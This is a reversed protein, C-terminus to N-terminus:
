GKGTFETPIYCEGQPNNYLHYGSYVWQSEVKGNVERTESLVNGYQDYEYIWKTVRIGEESERISEIQNGYQDYKTTFGYSLVGDHYVAYYTQRGAQDYEWVTVDSSGVFEQRIMRGDRDYEPLYERHTVQEGNADYVTMSVVDGYENYVRTTRSTIGGTAGYYVCEIENGREDYVSTSSLIGNELVKVVNGREDYEVQIGGDGQYMRIARGQEDYEYRITGSRHEQFINAECVLNGKADYEYVHTQILEGDDSAHSYRRQETTRGYADREYELRYSSAHDEYWSFCGMTDCKFSFRELYKSVDRYDQMSLFMEYAQEIEGQELLQVAQMYANNQEVSVSLEEVTGWLPEIVDCGAFVTLFLLTCLLFALANKM